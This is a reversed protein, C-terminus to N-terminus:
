ESGAHVHRDHDTSEQKDEAPSGSSEAPTSLAAMAAEAKDVTRYVKTDLILGAKDTIRWIVGVRVKFPTRFVGHSEVTEDTLDIQTPPARRDPNRPSKAVVDLPADIVGKEILYEDTFGDPRGTDAPRRDFARRFNDRTLPLLKKQEVLSQVIRESIEGSKILRADDFKDALGYDKGALMFPTDAVILDQTM